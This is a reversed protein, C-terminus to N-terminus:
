RSSFLTQAVVNPPASYTNQWLSGRHDREADGDDGSAEDEPAQDGPFQPELACAGKPAKRKQRVTAPSQGSGVEAGSM